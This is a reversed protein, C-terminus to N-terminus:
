TACCSPRPPTAALAWGQTNARRRRSTPWWGQGHSRPALPEPDKGLVRKEFDRGKGFPAQGDSLLWYLLVGLTFVDSQVGLTGKEVQEPSMWGRTGGWAEGSSGSAELDRALGFDSVHPAGGEDFLLNEPKLDCHLVARGHAFGVADVVTLMLRLIAEPTAYHERRRKHDLHGELRRFVLYPYGEHVGGDHAALINSHNLLAKHREKDFARIAAPSNSHAYKLALRGGNLTDTAPYVDGSGGRALWRGVIEYRGVRAGPLLDRETAGGGASAALRLVALADRHDV